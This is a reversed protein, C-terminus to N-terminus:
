DGTDLAELVLRRTTTSALLDERPEGARISRTARAGPWNPVAPQDRSLFNVVRGNWAPYDTRYAAVLYALWDLFGGILPALADDGDDEGWSAEDTALSERVVETLHRESRQLFTDSREDLVDTGWWSPLAPSAASVSELLGRYETGIAQPTSPEGDFLLLRPCGTRAAVEQGLPAAMCYGLVAHVAPIPEGAVTLAQVAYEAASASRPLPPRMLDRLDYGAEDLRLDSVRAEPRRGPYDLVLLLPATM